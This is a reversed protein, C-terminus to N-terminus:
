RCLFQQDLRAIPLQRRLALELYAADYASLRYQAMLDPLITFLTKRGPPPEVEIPLDGLSTLFQQAKEPTIRGERVALATVNSTEYLWLSPVIATDVLNSLRTLFGETYPTAEDPFCWAMTITNDLVYRSV